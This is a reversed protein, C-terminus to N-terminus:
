YFDFQIAIYNCMIYSTICASRTDEDVENDEQFSCPFDSKGDSIVEHSPLESKEFSSDILTLSNINVDVHDGEEGGGDTQICVYM